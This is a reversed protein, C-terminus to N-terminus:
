LKGFEPAYHIVGSKGKLAAPTLEM